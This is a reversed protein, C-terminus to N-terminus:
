LCHMAMAEVVDVAVSGCLSCIKKSKFLYLLVCSLWMVVNEARQWLVWLVCWGHTTGRKESRGEEILTSRRSALRAM